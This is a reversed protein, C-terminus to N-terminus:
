TGFCASVNGPFDEHGKPM